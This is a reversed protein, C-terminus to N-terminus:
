AKKSGKTKLANEFYISTSPYALVMTMTAMLNMLHFHVRQNIALYATWDSDNTLYHVMVDLGSPSFGKFRVIVSDTDIGEVTKLYDEASAIFARLQDETTQLSFTLIFNYKRMDRRTYNVIADGAIKANPLTVFEQELTRIRTSRFNIDEVIGDIGQTLIRDGVDFPKDVIMTVGAFVNSLTDQAALAFALGAIGLGAVLAGVDIGIQSLAVAISMVIIVVRYVRLSFQKLLQSRGVNLKTELGRFFYSFIGEFRMLLAAVTLILGIRLLLEIPYEAMLNSPLFQLGFVFAMLIVILRLPRRLPESYEQDWEPYLRTMSRNILRIVATTLPGRLGIILLVCLFASIYAGWTAGMLPQTFFEVVQEFDVNLAEM